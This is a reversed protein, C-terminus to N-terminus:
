EQTNLSQKYKRKDENFKKRLGSFALTNQKECWDEERKQSAVASILLALDDPSVRNNVVTGQGEYPPCLTGESQSYRYWDGKWDWIAVEASTKGGDCYHYEGWQVSVSWNNQFTLMFGPWAQNGDQIEQWYASM